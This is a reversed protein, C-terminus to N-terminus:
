QIKFEFTFDSGLPETVKGERDKGQIIGKLFIKYNRGSALRDPNEFTLLAVIKMDDLDSPAVSTGSVPEDDDLIAFNGAKDVAVESGDFLVTHSFVAIVVLDDKRVEPMSGDDPKPYHDILTLKATEEPVDVEVEGCGFAVLPVALICLMGALKFSKSTM